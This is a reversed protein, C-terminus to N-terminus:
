YQRKQQRLLEPSLLENKIERRSAVFIARRLTWDEVYKGSWETPFQEHNPQTIPIYVFPFLEKLRQFVWVRSPRCGVGSLAQSYYSSIEDLCHEAPQDDDSVCTELLLLGRCRDAMFKLAPRPTKLHYLVGYCYIVNFDGPFGTDPKELDLLLATVQPYRRKLLMVLEPRAESCLVECNRDIFFSTHDGVGASVEWTRNNRLNLALSALHEQRRQNLRLYYFSQFENLIREIEPTPEPQHQYDM